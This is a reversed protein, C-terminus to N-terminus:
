TLSPFSFIDPQVMVWYLFQIFLLVYILEREDDLTVFVM